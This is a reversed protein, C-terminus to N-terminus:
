GFSISVITAHLKTREGPPILVLSTRDPNATQTRPFVQVYSYFYKISETYQFLTIRAAIGVINRILRAASMDHIALLVYRISQETKIM